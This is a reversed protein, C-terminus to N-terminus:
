STKIGRSKAWQEARDAGSEYATKGNTSGPPKGSTRSDPTGGSTGAPAEFLVPFRGKLAEIDADIDEASAGVQAKILRVVDDLAEDNDVTEQPLGAKLLRLKVRDTHHDEAAKRDKEANERKIRENEELAKQLETKEAEQRDKAAKANEKIEDLTMGTDEQLKQLLAKETASATEAVRRGLIKDLEEQSFSKSTAAAAKAEEAAKAAAEAEAKAKEEEESM